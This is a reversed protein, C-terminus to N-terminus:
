NEETGTHNEKEIKVESNFIGTVIEARYPAEGCRNYQLFVNSTECILKEGSLSYWGPSALHLPITRWRPVPDKGDNESFKKMSFDPM